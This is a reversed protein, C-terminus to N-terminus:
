LVKVIWDYLEEVAETIYYGSGILGRKNSKNSPIYDDSFSLCMDLLKADSISGMDGLSVYGTHYKLSTIIWQAASIIEIPFPSYDFHIINKRLAVLEQNESFDCKKDLLFHISLLIFIQTLKIRIKNYDQQKM